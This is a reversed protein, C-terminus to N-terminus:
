PAPTSTTQAPKQTALQAVLQPDVYGSLVTSVTGPRRVVVVAPASTSALKLAAARAYSEKGVDLAAFGAHASSAGQRAAAVADSDGPVGPSFLVAVVVPHKALARRLAAPLGPDVKPPKKVVPANHTVLPPSVINAPAQLVFTKVIFAGVLAAVGVFAILQTRKPVGKLSFNFNLDARLAKKNGTLAKM